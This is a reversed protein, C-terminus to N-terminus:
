DATKRQTQGYITPNRGKGSQETWLWGAAELERLVRYISARDAPEELGNEVDDKTFREGLRPLLAIVEDVLEGPGRRRFKVEPEPPPPAAPIPEPEPASPTATGEVATSWMLDLMQVRARHGAKLLDMAIHLEEDLRRRRAEYESRTM